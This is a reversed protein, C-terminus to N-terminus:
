PERYRSPKVHWRVAEKGVPITRTASSSSARPHKAAKMAPNTKSSLFRSLATRDSHRLTHRAKPRRSSDWGPSRKKLEGLTMIANVWCAVVNASNVSFTGNLCSTRVTLFRSARRWHGAEMILGVVIRSTWFHTWHARSCPNLRVTMLPPWVPWQRLSLTTAISM